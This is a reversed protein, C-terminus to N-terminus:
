NYRTPLKDFSDPLYTASVIILSSAALSLLILVYRIIKFSKYDRSNIWFLMEHVCVKIQENMQLEM